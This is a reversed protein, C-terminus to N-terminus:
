WTFAQQRTMFGVFATVAGTCIVGPDSLLKGYESLEKAMPFKSRRSDIIMRVLVYVIAIVSVFAIAKLGRFFALLYMMMLLGAFSLAMTDLINEKYVRAMRASVLLLAIIVIWFM